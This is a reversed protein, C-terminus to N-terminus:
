LETRYVEEWRVLEQDLLKQTEKIKACLTAFEPTNYTLEALKMGLEHVQAELKKVRQEIKVQENTRYVPKQKVVKQTVLPTSATPELAKKQELYHEYNGLYKYAGDPTLEIIATALENVFTHDHSVFLLTGNYHLLAQLLVDKSQIDLHNTPEDLMLFNAQQLLTYVM